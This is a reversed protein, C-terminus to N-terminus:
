IVSSRKKKKESDKKDGGADSMSKRLKKKKKTKKTRDDDRDSASNIKSNSTRVLSVKKLKNSTKKRTLSTRRVPKATNKTNEELGPSQKRRSTTNSNSNNNSNSNSTNMDDSDSAEEIDSAFFLDDLIDHLVDFEQDSLANKKVYDSPKRTVTKRFSIPISETSNSSDNKGKDKSV